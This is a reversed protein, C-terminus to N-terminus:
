EVVFGVVDILLTKSGWGMGREVQEALEADAVIDVHEVRDSHGHGDGM